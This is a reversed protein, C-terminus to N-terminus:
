KKQITKLILMIDDQDLGKIEMLGQLADVEEYTGSISFLRGDLNLSAYDSSDDAKIFLANKIEDNEWNKVDEAKNPSCFLRLKNILYDTNIHSEFGVYSEIPCDEYETGTFISKLQEAFRNRESEGLVNNKIKWSAITQIHIEPYEKKIFYELEFKLRQPIYITNMSKELEIDKFM